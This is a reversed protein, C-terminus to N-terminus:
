TLASNLATDAKWYTAEFCVSMYEDGTETLKRRNQYQKRSPIYYSKHCKHSLLIDIFAYEPGPWSPNNSSWVIFFVSQNSMIILKYLQM